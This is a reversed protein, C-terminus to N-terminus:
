KKRKTKKIKERLLLSNPVLVIEKDSAEIRTETLNIEVVKGSVDKFEILDGVEIIKKQHIWFSAFVNPVFDKIALIVFSIVILLIIILIIYLIITSLGLQNLAMIVGIFLILYYIAKGFIEEVPARIGFSEKLIKNTNLERLIKITLNGLFRAVLFAILLVVIAAIVRNLNGSVIIDLVQNADVM